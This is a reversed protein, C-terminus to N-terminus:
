SSPRRRAAAPSGRLAVTLTRQLRLEGSVVTLPVTATTGRGVIAGRASKSLQIRLRAWDGAVLMRPGLVRAGYVADGIRLRVRRALELVCDQPPRCLVRALAAIGDGGVVRTASAVKLLPMAAQRSRVQPAAPAAGAPSATGATGAEAPPPIRVSMTAARTAVEGASSSFIARYRSGALAATARVTLTTAKAGPIESWATADPGRVQWRVTPAPDGTAKAIFSASALETPSSLAVLVDEPQLSVTAAEGQRRYARVGRPEATNEFYLVDRDAAGVSPELATAGTPPTAITSVVAGHEVVSIQGLGPKLAYGTGNFDDVVYGGVGPGLDVPSQPSIYGDPQQTLTLMHAKDATPSLEVLAATGNPGTVALSYGFRGSPNPPVSDPIEVAELLSGRDIFQMSSTASLSAPSGDYYPYRTAVLGGKTTTALSTVGYGGTELPPRSATTWGAGDRVALAVAPTAPDDPNLPFETGEVAFLTDSVRDYALRTTSVAEIPLTEEEYTGPGPKWTFARIPVPVASDPVTFVTGHEADFAYGGAALSVVPSISGRLSLSDLRLARIGAPSVAHVVDRDPDVFLASTEAAPESEAAIEVYGPAGPPTWPEAVPKGGPGEYSFSFADLARGPLFLNALASKGATTVAAPIANWTTVSGAIAPEVAGPDLRALYLHPYGVFGDSSSSRTHVDAFLGAWGPVIEVAIRDVRIELDSTARSLQVGGGFRVTTAGSAPDYSGGALPFHFTGDQNRSAGGSVSISGPAPDSEIYDRLAKNLGWDAGAGSVIPVPPPAGQAQSLPLFGAACVLALTIGTGIWRWEMRM